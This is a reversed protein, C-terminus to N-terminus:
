SEEEVAQARQEPPMNEAAWDIVPEMWADDGERYWDPRAADLRRDIEEVWQERSMPVRMEGENM